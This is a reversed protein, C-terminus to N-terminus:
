NVQNEINKSFFLFMLHVNNMVFNGGKPNVNKLEM